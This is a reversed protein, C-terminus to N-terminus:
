AMCIRDDTFTTLYAKFGRTISHELQKLRMIFYFSSV